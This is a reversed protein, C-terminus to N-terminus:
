SAPPLLPPHDLSLARWCACLVNTWLLLGTLAAISALTSASGIVAGVAILLHAGSILLYLILSLADLVNWLSTFYRRGEAMLQAAEGLSFMSCMVFSCLVIPLESNVLSSTNIRNNGRLGLM